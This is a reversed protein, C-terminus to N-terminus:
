LLMIMFSSFFLFPVFSPFSTPSSSSPPTPSTPASSSGSVNIALKQGNACHQGFGCIYYHQGSTNITVNAPGTSLASGLIRSNCSNYSEESVEVVNHVGTEFNFRLIDGVAFSKDSAWNRYASSDSPVRWGLDDGVVHVRQAEASQTLMLIALALVGGVGIVNMKNISRLKKWVIHAKNILIFFNFDYVLLQFHFHLSSHSISTFTAAGGTSVGTMANAM